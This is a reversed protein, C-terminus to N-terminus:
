AAPEKHWGVLEGDEYEYVITDGAADVHGDEVGPHYDPYEPATAVDEATIEVEDM